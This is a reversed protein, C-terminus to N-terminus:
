APGGARAKVKVTVILDASGRTSEIEEANRQDTGAAWAEAEDALKGFAIHRAVLQPVRVEPPTDLYWVADLMTRIERVVKVPSLLYNGETIVIPIARPVPISSAIPEELERVFTPAYVVDEDRARLRRILSYYAGLDFTELAGRRDLLPTGKLVSTALHFGDFPVVVALDSGLYGALAEALTSKGAGPAGCIGVIIRDGASNLLRILRDALADLTADVVTGPRAAQGSNLARVNSQEVGGGKGM